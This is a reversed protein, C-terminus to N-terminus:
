LVRKLIFQALVTPPYLGFDATPNIDIYRKKDAM